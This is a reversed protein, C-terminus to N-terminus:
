VNKLINELEVNKEKLKNILDPIRSVMGSKGAEEIKHSLAYISNGIKKVLKTDM